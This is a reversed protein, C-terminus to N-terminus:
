ELKFVLYNIKSTVRVIVKRVMHLATLHETYIAADGRAGMALSLKEPHDMDIKVAYQLPAAGHEMEAATTPLTGSANFQGQATAWIISNVRGKLIQGPKSKLSVEVENGAQVKTLQNQDFFAIVQQKTEVFSMVPRLPLAAAYSGPRVQLNIAYGDAPARIVTQALNWRATDLQAKIAAVASNDGGYTAGIQLRVKEEAQKAALVAAEHRKVEARFSEVDYQTGAGKAALEISQQLRTRALQLPAQAAATNNQALQLDRELEQANAKGGVLQAELQRVQLEFPEPDIRLLVDGKKILRNGEVPVEIVRGTVRPVIEVVYNTVRVDGTSPATVNITFVLVALAFAGFAVVGVQSKINWPLLKLKIFVLWVVLAYTCVILELM